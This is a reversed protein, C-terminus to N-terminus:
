IGYTARYMELIHWAIFFVAGIILLRFQWVAYFQARTINHDLAKEVGSVAAALLQPHSPQNPHAGLELSLLNSNAYVATQIWMLNKCGFFFSAGWSLAALAALTLWWDLKLGTTKQVAFAVASAAIALLFYTYKEEGMHHQKYIELLDKNEAM